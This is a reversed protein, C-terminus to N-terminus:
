IKRVDLFFYSIRGFLDTAFSVYYGFVFIDLDGALRVRTFALSLVDEVTGCGDHRPDSHGLLKFRHKHFFLQENQLLKHTLFLEPFKILINQFLNLVNIALFKSFMCLFDFVICNVVKDYLFDEAEYM